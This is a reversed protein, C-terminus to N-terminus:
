LSMKLIGVEKENLSRWKGRPLNKKTLGAFAVRDLKVVNYGLSEMMRRIIRNKGSHLEIGIEKKNEGDGVYSVNDAKSMGDELEIGKLMKQIDAKTVAKNLTVHYIKTVGHKPHTLRKALDGDNTLMLLGTTPRDLRGVPYVRERVTSAVIDIVTPRGQPDDATTIIGKPKNMLLYIYKEFQLKEGGYLVEDNPKIKTGMATVVKGNVSIMGQAILNDAERRSCVGSSAVYKNLRILDRNVLDTPDVELREPSTAPKPKSSFEKKKFTNKREGDSKFETKKFPRREIKGKKFGKREIPAKQASKGIRKGSQKERM